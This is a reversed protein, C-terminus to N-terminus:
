NIDLYEVDIRPMTVQKGLVTTSTDTGKCEGYITISDGEMLHSEGEKYSYVCGWKNGSSDEVYITISGFLGEIIQSAKGRLKCASGKYTDPNRLIDEYNLEECFSKYEEESLEAGSDAVEQTVVFYESLSEDSEKKRYDNVNDGIAIIMCDSFSISEGVFGYSDYGDVTGIIAVKDGEKVIDSYDISTNFNSMMFGDDITSQLVGDKIDDIKIITCFSVGEMNAHYKSLDKKTIYPYNGSNYKELEEKFDYSVKEIEEKESEREEENDNESENEERVPDTNESYNEDDGSFLMAIFLIFVVVGIIIWKVVGSQKKRCMPCVKADKPIMVKCHKCQKLPIQPQIFQGQNPVNQGQTNQNEM